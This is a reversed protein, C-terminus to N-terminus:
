SVWYPAPILVKEGPELVAMLGVHLGSKAGSTVMVQAPSFDLGFTRNLWEAGAKRLEPVGAAETYRTNGQRIADIGAEAVPQPTPFDPEGAALSVVSQGAARMTAAKASIALTVSETISRAKSSPAPLAM